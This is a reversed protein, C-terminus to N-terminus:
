PPDWWYKGSFLIAFPWIHCERVSSWGRPSMTVNSYRTVMDRKRPLKPFKVIIFDLLDNSPNESFDKKITRHLKENQNKHYNMKSESPRNSTNTWRAYKGARLAFYRFNDWFRLFTCTLRSKKSFKWKSSLASCWTLFFKVSLTM